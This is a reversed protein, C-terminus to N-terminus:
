EKRREAAAASDLRAKEADFALMAESLLKRVAQPLRESSSGILLQEFEEADATM